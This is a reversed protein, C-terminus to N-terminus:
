ASINLISEWFSVQSELPGVLSHSGRECIAHLILVCSCLRFIELDDRREGEEAWDVAGVEEDKTSAGYGPFTNKKPLKLWM